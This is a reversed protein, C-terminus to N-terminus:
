EGPRGPVCDTAVEGNAGTTAQMTHLFPGEVKWGGGPTSGPVEVRRRPAASPLGQVTAPPAASEPVSPDQDIMGPASPAQRLPEAAAGTVHVLAVLAGCVAYRLRKMASGRGIGPRRAARHHPRRRAM